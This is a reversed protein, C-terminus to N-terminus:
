FNVLVATSRHSVRFNCGFIFHCTNEPARQLVPVEATSSSSGRVTYNWHEGRQSFSYARPTEVDTTVAFL